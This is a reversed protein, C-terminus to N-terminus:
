DREAKVTPSTKHTPDLTVHSFTVRRDFPRVQFSVSRLNEVPMDLYYLNQRVTNAMASNGARAVHEIGNDDVGVLRYQLKSIDHSVTVLAGPQNNNMPNAANSVPSIIV